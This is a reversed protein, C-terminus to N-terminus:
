PEPIVLVEGVQIRHPNSIANAQVLADVSVDFRAAIRALTDGAQVEYVRPTPLPAGGNGTAGDAAAAPPTATMILLPAADEEQTTAPEEVPLAEPAAEPAQGWGLIAPVMREFLLPRLLAVLFVTAVLIFVLILFKIMEGRRHLTEHEEELSM